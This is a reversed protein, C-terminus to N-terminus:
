EVIARYGVVRGSARLATLAERVRSPGRDVVECLAAFNAPRGQSRKLICHVLDRLASEITAQM